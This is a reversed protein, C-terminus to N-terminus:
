IWQTISFRADETDQNSQFCDGPFGVSRRYMVVLAEM